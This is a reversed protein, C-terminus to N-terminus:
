ANSLKVTLTRPGDVVFNNIVPVTFTQQVCPDTKVPSGSCAPFSLTGSTATYDTGAKATGNITTYDVSVAQNLRALSHGARPRVVTITASGQNEAVAYAASSLQVKAKPSAMAQAPVALAVLALLPILTKRIM